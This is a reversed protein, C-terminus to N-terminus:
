AAIACRGRWTPTQRLDRGAASDPRCKLSAVTGQCRTTLTLPIIECRHTQEEMSEHRSRRRRSMCRIDARHKSQHDHLPGPLASRWASTRRPSPTSTVVSLIPSIYISRKRYPHNGLCNGLSTFWPSPSSSHIRQDLVHRADM